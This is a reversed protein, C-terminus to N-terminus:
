AALAAAEGLVQYGLRSLATARAAPERSTRCTRLTNELETNAGAVTEFNCGARTCSVWPAPANKGNAGIM